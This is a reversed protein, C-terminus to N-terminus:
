FNNDLLHDDEVSLVCELKMMTLKNMIDQKVVMNNVNKILNNKNEDILNKKQLMSVIKLMKYKNHLKM